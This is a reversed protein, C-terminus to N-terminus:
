SLSLGQWISCTKQDLTQLDILPKVSVTESVEQVHYQRQEKCVVEKQALMQQQCGFYVPQLSSLM